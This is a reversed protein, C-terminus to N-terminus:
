KKFFCDILLKVISFFTYITSIIQSVKLFKEWCNNKLFQSILVCNSGSNKFIDLIKIMENFSSWTFIPTKEMVTLENLGPQNVLIKGCLEFKLAKSKLPKIKKTPQLTIQIGRVTKGDYNQNENPFILNATYCSLYSITVIESACNDFVHVNMYKYIKSMVYKFYKEPQEDFDEEEDTDSSRLEESNATVGQVDHGSIEDTRKQESPQPLAPNLSQFLLLAEWQSRSVTILEQTGNVNPGRNQSVISTPNTSRQSNPNSSAPKSSEQAKTSKLRTKLIERAPARSIVAFSRKAPLSTNASPEQIISAGGNAKQQTKM